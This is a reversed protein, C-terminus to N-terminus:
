FITNNIKKVIMRSTKNMLLVNSISDWASQTSVKHIAKGEAPSFLCVRM